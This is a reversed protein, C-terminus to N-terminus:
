KPHQGRCREAFFTCRTFDAFGKILRHMAGGGVDRALANGIRDGHNPREPHGQTVREIKALKRIAEILRNRIHEFLPQAGGIDRAARRRNKRCGLHAIRNEGLQLRRNSPKRPAAILGHRNGHALTLYLYSGSKGALIRGPEHPPDDAPPEEFPPALRPDRRAKCPWSSVIYSRQVAFGPLVVVAKIKDGDPHCTRAIWTCRRPKLHFIQDGANGGGSTNFRHDRFFRDLRNEREKALLTGLGLDIGQERGHWARGLSGVCCGPFAASAGEISHDARRAADHAQRAPESMKAEAHALHLCDPPLDEGIDALLGSVLKNALNGRRDGTKGLKELITSRRPKKARIDRVPNAYSKLLPKKFLEAARAM